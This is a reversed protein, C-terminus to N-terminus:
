KACWRMMKMHAASNLTGLRYQFAWLPRHRLHPHHEAKRFRAGEGGRKAARNPDGRGVVAAADRSAYTETRRIALCSCCLVLLHRAPGAGQRAFHATSIQWHAGVQGELLTVAFQRAHLAGHLDASLRLLVFRAIGDGTSVDFNVLLRQCCLAAMSATLPHAPECV